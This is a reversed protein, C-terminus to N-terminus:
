TLSQASAHAPMQSAYLINCRFALPPYEGKDSCATKRAPIDQRQAVLGSAQLNQCKIPRVNSYQV